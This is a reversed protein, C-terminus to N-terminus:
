DPPPLIRQDWDAEPLVDLARQGRGAVDLEIATVDGLYLRRARRV